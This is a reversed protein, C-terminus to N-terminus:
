DNILGLLKKVINGMFIKSNTVLRTIDNDNLEIISGTNEWRISNTRKLSDSIKGRHKLCNNLERLENFENVGEIEEFDIKLIKKFKSKLNGYYDRDNDFLGDFNESLLDKEEYYFDLIEKLKIESMSYFLIILSKRLEPNFKEIEEKLYALRLEETEDETNQSKYNKKEEEFDKTLSKSVRHLIKSYIEFVEYDSFQSSILKIKFLNKYSM